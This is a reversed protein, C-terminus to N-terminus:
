GGGQVIHLEIQENTYQNASEIAEEKTTSVFETVTMGEPLTGIETDISVYERGNFTYITDGLLYVTETNGELIPPLETVRKVGGTDGGGGGSGSDIVYVTKDTDVLIWQKKDTAFYFLAKDLGDAFRGSTLSRELSEAKGKGFYPIKMWKEDTM